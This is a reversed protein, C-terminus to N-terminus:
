SRSQFRNRVKLRNYAPNCLHRTSITKQQLRSNDVEFECLVPLGQPSTNMILFLNGRFFAEKTPNSNGPETGGGEYGGVGGGGLLGGGGGGDKWLSGERM